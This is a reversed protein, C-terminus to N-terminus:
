KYIDVIYINESESDQRYKAYEEAVNVHAVIFYYYQFVFTVPAGMVSVPSHLATSKSGNM